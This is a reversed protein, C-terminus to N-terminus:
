PWLAGLDWSLFVACGCADMAHLPACKLFSIPAPMAGEGELASPSFPGAGLRGKASSLTSISRNLTRTKTEKKLHKQELTKTKKFNLCFAVLSGHM